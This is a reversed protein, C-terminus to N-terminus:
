SDSPRLNSECGNVVNGTLTMNGRLDQTSRLMNSTICLIQQDQLVYFPEQRGNSTEGTAWPLPLMGVHDSATLSHRSIYRADTMIYQM